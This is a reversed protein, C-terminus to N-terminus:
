HLKYQVHLCTNDEVTTFLYQHVTYTGTREAFLHDPGLDRHKNSTDENLPHHRTSIVCVRTSIYVRVHIYFLQRSLTFSNIM